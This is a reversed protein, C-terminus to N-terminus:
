VDIEKKLETGNSEQPTNAPNVAANAATSSPNKNSTKAFLSQPKAKMFHKSKHAALKATCPSMITDSPSIYTQKAKEEEMKSKLVQRHYEMTKPKEGVLKDEGASKSNLTSSSITSTNIDRAALVNSPASM